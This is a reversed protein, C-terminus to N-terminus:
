LRPIRQSVNAVLLSQQFLVPGSGKTSGYMYDIFQEEPFIKRAADPQKNPNAYSVTTYGDRSLIACTSKRRYRICDVNNLNM